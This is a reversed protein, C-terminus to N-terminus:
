GAPGGCEFCVWVWVWVRVGVDWVRVRILTYPIFGESSAVHLDVLPRAEWTEGDLGGSM